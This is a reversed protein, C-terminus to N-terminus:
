KSFLDNLKGQRYFEIIILTYAIVLPGLVLGAIGFFFLGGITGILSLAIPLNSQKSLLYPRLLNDISSIFVAGYLILFIGAFTEGTVLLFISVPLWVLWSGLVPIISVLSAVVTLIIVNPVGLFFLGAGLALGQIVGILVQGFIIANTIGRFEKLFKNETAKSFPSLDSIYDKFQKSDKTAFFFTFLFVAFQFLLTPLNVLIDTFQTLFATFFKGIINDINKGITSAFETDIVGRVVEAMNLNQVSVYTDFSQNVIVPVFYIVPIAVIAVLGFVLLGTALNQNKIKSKISSNVPGFIYAFLLGFIIPMIIPKVIFFTLVFIALIIAGVVGRKVNDPNTM